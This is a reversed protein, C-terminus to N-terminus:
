RDGSRPADSWILSDIAPVEEIVGADKLFGASMEVVKPKVENTYTPLPMAAVLAPDQKSEKVIVEKLEEPHSNAYEAAAALADNWRGVLDANKAIYDQSMFGVVAVNTPDDYAIAAPDGLSIYDGTETLQTPFPQLSTMADVRGGEIATKQEAFPIQVYEITSPDGGAKRVAENVWFEYCCKIANVAVTKGELDTWSKIGSDAPVVTQVQDDPAPADAYMGSVIQVNIGSSRSTIVGDVGGGVVNLQGNTLQSVGAASNALPVLELNIGRDAFINQQIGLPLHAFGAIPAYGFKITTQGNDSVENGGADSCGALALVMAVVIVGVKRIKM